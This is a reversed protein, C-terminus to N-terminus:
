KGKKEINQEYSDELVLWLFISVLLGGVAFGIILGIEFTVNMEGKLYFTVYDDL